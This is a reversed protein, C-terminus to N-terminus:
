YCVSEMKCILTLCATWVCKNYYDLFSCTKAACSLWCWAAHKLFVFPFEYAYM